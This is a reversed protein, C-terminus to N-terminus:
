DNGLQIRRGALISAAIQLFAIASMRRERDQERHALATGVQSVLSIWQGVRSIDM